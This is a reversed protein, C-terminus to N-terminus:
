YPSGLAITQGTVSGSREDALFTIACMIEEINLPHPALLRAEYSSRAEPRLADVMGTDDLFSIGVSNFTIGSGRFEHAFSKMLFELGLKTSAYLGNGTVPISTAISSISVVRGIGKPRMLKVAERTVIHASVLNSRLLNSFRDASTSLLLDGSFAGANNVVVDLQGFTKRVDSFLRKVASDDTVDCIRREFRDAVSQHWEDFPSRAVGVVTMGQALFGAAIRSGLGRSAGTILAVRGTV